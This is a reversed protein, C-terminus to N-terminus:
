VIVAFYRKLVLFPVRCPIVMEYDSLHVATLVRLVMFLGRRNEPGLYQACLNVFDFQKLKIALAAAICVDHYDVPQASLKTVLQIEDHLRQLAEATGLRYCSSAFVTFLLRHNWLRGQARRQEEYVDLVHGHLDCEYLLDLLVLIMNRSVDASNVRDRYLQLALESQRLNHCMHMFLTNLSALVRPNEAGKQGSQSQLRKLLTYALQADSKSEALSVLIRVDQGLVAANPESFQESLKEVYKQQTLGAAQLKEM